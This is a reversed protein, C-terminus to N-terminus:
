QLGSVGTWIWSGWRRLAGQWAGSEESHVSSPHNYRSPQAALVLSVINEFGVFFHCKLDRRDTDESSRLQQM